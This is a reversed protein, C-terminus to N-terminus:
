MDVLCVELHGKCLASYEEAIGGQTSCGGHYGHYLKAFGLFHMRILQDSVSKSQVLFSGPVAVSAAMLGIAAERVSQSYKGQLVCGRQKLIWLHVCVQVFLAARMDLLGVHM